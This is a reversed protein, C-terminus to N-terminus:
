KKRKRKLALLKMADAAAREGDIDFLVWKGDHYTAARDYAERIPSSLSERLADAGAREAAGFVILLM